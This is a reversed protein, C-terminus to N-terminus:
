GSPPRDAFAAALAHFDACTVNDTMQQRMPPPSSPYKFEIEQGPALPTTQFSLEKDIWYHRSGGQPTECQLIWATAPSSYENRIHITQEEGEGNVPVAVNRM